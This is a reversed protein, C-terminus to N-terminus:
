ISLIISLFQGNTMKHNMRAFLQIIAVKFERYFENNRRQPRQM